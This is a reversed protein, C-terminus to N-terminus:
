LLIPPSLQQKCALNCQQSGQAHQYEYLLAILCILLPRNMGTLPLQELTCTALLATASCDAASRTHCVGLWFAQQHSKWQWSACVREM